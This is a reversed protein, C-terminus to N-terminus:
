LLDRLVGEVRFYIIKYCEFEIGFYSGKYCELISKKEKGLYM